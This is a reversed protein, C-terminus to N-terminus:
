SFYGIHGDGRVVDMMGGSAGLDKLVKSCHDM